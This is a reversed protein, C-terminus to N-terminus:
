AAVSMTGVALMVLGMLPEHFLNLFLERTMVEHDGESDRFIEAPENAAMLPYAISGEKLSRGVRDFFECGIIVVDAAIQWAEKADEM